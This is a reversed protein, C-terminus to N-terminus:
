KVWTLFSTGKPKEINRENRWVTGIDKVLADDGPMGFMGYKYKLVFDKMVPNKQRFQKEPNLDDSMLPLAEQLFSRKILIPNLGFQTGSNKAIFLEDGDYAYDSDFMIYPSEKPYRKKFLKIAALDNNNNLLTIIKMLNINRNLEWDDELHFIFDNTCNSWVWKVAKAFNPKRPINYTINDSYQKCIEIMNIQKFNKSDGVPDVNIVIHLNDNKIKYCYDMFCNKYFSDLTRKLLDPRITATIAIDIM